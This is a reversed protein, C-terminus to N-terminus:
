RRPIRRRDARAGAGLSQVVAHGVPLLGAGPRRRRRACRGDGRDASPQVRCARDPDRYLGARGSAGRRPDHRGLAPRGAEDDPRNNVIAVFGAAKIAAIDEPQIQPAVSISDDVKRIMSCEGRSHDKLAIACARPQPSLRPAPRDLERDTGTCEKRAGAPRDPPQRAPDESMDEGRWHDCGQRREIFRTVAPPLSTRGGRLPSRWAAIM